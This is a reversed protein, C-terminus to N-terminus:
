DKYHPMGLGAMAIIDRQVENTGGGFTLILMSRYMMEIRGMLVAEPSGRRIAGGAGLVEGLMRYGAINFESGFVKVASADAMALNGQTLAWAQKWNMLKLTEAHAKVKALNLQVWPEDIVRRGNRVTDRAWQAVAQYNRELTGSAMLSVREHNLQNVILGWGGNVPGVVNEYPVRVDDYYTSNTAIGGVTPTPTMRFGEVDTPVIIMSIGRHKPADPDTRVALWVYDAYNALSTFSKQGNIVWTDGDRVAKTQLSGLDTGAGPESYGICFFIEGALIKPLFFRRQEETGFQMLTPGVTNLTLFPLPFGSRQAEDSFLYQEISSRAQGGYEKPWGIGLLGDKGMQKMAARFLPGGGESGAVEAVLEPTMVKEFYNRMEDRFARQEPTLDIHM